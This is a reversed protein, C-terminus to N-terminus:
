FRLVAAIGDHRRLDDFHRTHVVEASQLVACEVASEVIDDREELPGGDVPCVSGDPAMWGCRPCVVGSARFRDGILLAEVRRQVLADLVGDLGAAAREHMGLRDELRDLLAREREREIRQMFPRAAERVEEAGSHALDGPLREALRRQLEPHLHREVYPWSEADASALLHDFPQERYSRHLTDLVTKVHQEAHTDVHRQFRAQSWGGQKHRNPQEEELDELEALTDASGRFIRGISRDVVVVAWRDPSLLRSLPEVYPSDDIVVRIDTPRPLRIEEFLDAPGCVFVAVAHAGEASFEGTFFREARELDDRLAVQEDHTLGDARHIRRSAEDLLSRIASSRARQTGFETPDLDLYLSLVKADRVHLGALSRLRDRTIENVQV